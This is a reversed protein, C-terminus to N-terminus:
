RKDESLKAMAEKLTVKKEDSGEPAREWKSLQPRVRGKSLAKNPQTKM